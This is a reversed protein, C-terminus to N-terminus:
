PSFTGDDNQKLLAQLRAVFSGRYTKPLHFDSRFDDAPGALYREILDLEERLDWARRSLAYFLPRNTL